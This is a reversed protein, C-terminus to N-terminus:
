LARGFAKEGFLFFCHPQIFNPLLFAALLEIERDNKCHEKWPASHTVRKKKDERENAPTCRVCVPLHERVEGQEPTSNAAAQGRGMEDGPEAQSTPQCTM